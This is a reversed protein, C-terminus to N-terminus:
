PVEQPAAPLTFRISTSGATTHTDFSGGYRSVIAECLSLGLGSTVSAAHLVRDPPASDSAVTVVSWGPEGDDSRVRVAVDQPTDHGAVVEGIAYAILQHALHDAVRLIHDAQLDVAPVIGGTAAMGDVVDRVVDAVAVNHAPVPDTSGVARVLYQQIADKMEQVFEVGHPLDASLDATASATATTAEVLRGDMQDIWADLRDLPSKLDVAVSAAFWELERQRGHDDTVDRLLLLTPAGETSDVRRATVVLRKGTLGAIVDVTPRQGPAPDILDMLRAEDWRGQDAVPRLQVARCWGVDLHDSLPVGILRHVAANSVQVVGERDILVVADTMSELVATLMAERAAEGAARADTHATTAASQERLILLMLTVSTTFAILLDVVAQPMVWLDAGVDPYEAYPTVAWIVAVALGGVAAWRVTLVAGALVAPVVFLWDLPYTPAVDPAEVCFVAVLVFVPIWLPHPRPLDPVDRHHILPLVCHCGVASLSFMWFGNWLDVRLDGSGGLPTGPYAGAATAVGVGVATCVMLWSVDALTCPVWPRATTGPTTRASTDYVDTHDARDHRPPVRQYLYASILAGVVNAAAIPVVDRAEQGVALAAAGFGTAAAIAVAAIVQHPPQRDQWVVTVTAFIMATFLWYTSQGHDDLGYFGLPASAAGLIMSVPIMWWVHTTPLPSRSTGTWTPASVAPGTPNRM